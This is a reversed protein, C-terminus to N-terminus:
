KNQRDFFRSLIWSIVFTIFFKLINMIDESIKYFKNNDYLLAYINTAFCSLFLAISLLVVIFKHTIFTFCIDLPSYQQSDKQNVENIVEKIRVQFENSNTNNPIIRYTPDPDNLFSNFMEERRKM